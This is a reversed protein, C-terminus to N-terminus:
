HTTELFIHPLAGNIKPFGLINQKIPSLPVISAPTKILVNKISGYKNNYISLGIFAIFGFLIPYKMNLKDPIYENDTIVKEHEIWKIYMYSIGSVLLGIIIPNRLFEM